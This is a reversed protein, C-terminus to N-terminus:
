YVKTSLSFFYSTEPHERIIRFVNPEFTDNQGEVENGVVVGGSLVIRNFLLLSPGAFIRKGPHQIDTGLSFAAGIKSKWKNEEADNRASFFQWGLFLTFATSESGNTTRQFLEEEGFTGARKVKSFTVDNLGSFAIGAHAVLPMTSQVFYSVEDVPTSAGSEDTATLTFTVRTGADRKGVRKIEIGITRASLRMFIQARDNVAEHYATVARYMEQRDSYAKIFADRDDQVLLQLKQYAAGLDRLLAAVSRKAPASATAPRGADRDISLDTAQSRTLGTDRYQATIEGVRADLERAAKYLKRLTDELDEPAGPAAGLVGTITPAVLSSWLKTLYGYSEVRQEAIDFKLSFRLYNFHEVCVEVRDHDAIRTEKPATTVWVRNDGYRVIFRYGTSGRSCDQLEQAAALASGGVVLLLAHALARISRAMM